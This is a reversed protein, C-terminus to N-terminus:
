LIQDIALIFESHKHTRFGASSAELVYRGPSLFPVTFDGVENSSAQQALNTDLNTIKIMVGPVVAGTPDTIRGVVSASTTQAFAFSAMGLLLAVLKMFALRGLVPSCSLAMQNDPALFTLARLPFFCVLKHARVHFM